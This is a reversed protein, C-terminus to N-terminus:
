LDITKHQCIYLVINYLILSNYLLIEKMCGKRRFKPRGYHRVNSFFLSERQSARSAIRKLLFKTQLFFVTDDLALSVKKSFSECVQVHVTWNANKEQKKAIYFCSLM